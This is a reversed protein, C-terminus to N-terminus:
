ASDRQPIRNEGSRSGEAIADLKRMDDIQILKASDDGLPKGALRDGTIRRRPKPMGVTSHNVGNPQLVNTDCREYVVLKGLQPRKGNGDNRVDEAIRDLIIEFHQAREFVG